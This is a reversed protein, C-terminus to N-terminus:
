PKSKGFEFFGCKLDHKKWDEIQANERLGQSASYGSFGVLELSSFSEIITHPDFVRKGNFVVRERGIPVSFYLRGGPKLVRALNEMFTFCAAPDVPDGYRGLGFHEAAHLSSLSNVSGNELMDLTTCDAEVFRLGPVNEKMPRVDMVTVNEMFVLLHTIFGDIRSGVDIHERPRREYIKRAAWIDQYFYDGGVSGAGMEMDRLYPSIEERLVPFKQIRADTSASQLRRYARFDKRFQRHNRFGGVLQGLGPMNIKFLAHFYNRIALARRSIGWSRIGQKRSHNSEMWSAM